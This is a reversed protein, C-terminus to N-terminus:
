GGYNHSRPRPISASCARRSSRSPIWSRSVTRGAPVATPDSYFVVAAPARDWIPAVDFQVQTAIAATMTAVDADTVATSQNLIAILM